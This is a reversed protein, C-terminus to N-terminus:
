NFPVKIKFAQQKEGLEFEKDKNANSIFRIHGDLIFPTM